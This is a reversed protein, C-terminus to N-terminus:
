LTPNLSSSASAVIDIANNTLAEVLNEYHKEALDLLSDKNSELYKTVNDSNDKCETNATPMNQILKIMDPDSKLTQILAAFSVSILKKNEALVAENEKVIQKLDDNKLIKAIWKEM